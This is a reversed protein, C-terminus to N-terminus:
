SCRDPTSRFQPDEPEDDNGRGSGLSRSAPTRASARLLDALRAANDGKIMSFHDGSSAHLQLRDGLLEGWGLDPPLTQGTMRSLVAPQEPRVLHVTTEIPVIRYDLIMRVHAKGAEVIRRMQEATTTPPLALHSKAVQVAFEWRAEGQLSRLHEYSLGAVDIDSDAFWNAFGALDFLFKVEDDLRLYSCISPLPTDFLMLMGVADGQECLTRALEYAFIGGTSWGALHYPGSPQIARLAVLYDRVM